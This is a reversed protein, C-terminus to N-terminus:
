TRIYYIYMMMDKVQGNQWSVGYVPELIKLDFPMCLVGYVPELIILDISM